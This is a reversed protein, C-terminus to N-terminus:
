STETAVVDNKCRRKVNGDSSYPSTLAVNSPSMAVVNYHRLQAQQSRGRDLNDSKHLSIELHRCRFGRWWKWGPGSTENFRSKRSSKKVIAWAFPKIHSVTLRQNMKGMFFCYNVLVEEEDPTLESNRGAGEKLFKGKIRDNLTQRPVEFVKAAETVNM